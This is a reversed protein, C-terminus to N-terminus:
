GLKTGGIRGALFSACGIFLLRFYSAYRPITGFVITSILGAAPLTIAAILAGLGISFLFLNGIWQDKDRQTTASFYYYFLAAGIRAGFLLGVISATLDLLEMVGYDAPSLLRTYLPLMLSSALRTVITAM